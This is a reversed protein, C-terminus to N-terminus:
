YMAKVIMRKNEAYDRYSYITVDNLLFYKDPDTQVEDEYEEILRDCEMLDDGSYLLREDDDEGGVVCIWLEYDAMIFERRLKKTAWGTPNSEMTM